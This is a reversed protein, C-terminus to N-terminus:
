PKRISAPTSCNASDFSCRNPRPERKETLRGQVWSAQGTGSTAVLMPLGPSAPMAFELKQGHGLNPSEWLVESNPLRFQLRLQAGGAANVSFTYTKGPQWPAWATIRQSKGATQRSIIPQDTKEFQLSQNWSDFRGALGGQDSNWPGRMSLLNLPQDLEIRNGNADRWGDVASVRRLAQAIANLDAGAESNWRNPHLDINAGQEVPITFRTDHNQDVVAAGYVKLTQALKRLIPTRLATVEFSPPLMMLSGMPVGGRYNQPANDDEATAPFVYGKRLASGDLTMALVHRFLTDGDDLEHKRVLGAMTPVGAARAGQHNHAPDSWGRGGLATWAYQTARWQGDIKRLQWFSHM